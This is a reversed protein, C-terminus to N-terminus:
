RSRQQPECSYKKDSKGHHIRRKKNGSDLKTRFKLSPNKYVTLIDNDKIILSGGKAKDLIQLFQKVESVAVQYEKDGLYVNTAGGPAPRQEGRDVIIEVLHSSFGRQNKRKEAHKTLKM